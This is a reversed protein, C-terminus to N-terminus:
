PGKLEKARIPLWTAMMGAMIPLGMMRERGDADLNQWSQVGQGMVQAIQNGEMALMM